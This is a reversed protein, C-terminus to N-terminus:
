IFALEGSENRPQDSMGAICIRTSRIRAPNVAILRPTSASIRPLRDSDFIIDRRAQFKVHSLADGSRATM